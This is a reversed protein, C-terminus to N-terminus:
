ITPITVNGGAAYLRVEKESYGAVVVGIYYDSGSKQYLPINNEGLTATTLTFGKSVILDKYSLVFQNAEEKTGFNETKLYSCKGTIDEETGDAKKIKNDTNVNQFVRRYGVPCKRYPLKDLRNCAEREKAIEALEPDSEWSDAEPTELKSFDLNITTTGIASFDRKVDYNEQTLESSFTGERTKFNEGEFSVSAQNKASGSKVDNTLYGSYFLIESGFDQYTKYNDGDVYFIDDSFAFTPYQNAITGERDKIKTLVNKEEDYSYQILKGDLVKVGNHSSLSGDTDYIRQDIADSTYKIVLKKTTQEAPSFITTTNTYNRGDLLNKKAKAFLPSVNPDSAYPTLHDITATGLESFTTKLVRGNYVTDTENEKYPASVRNLSVVKGDKVEFYVDDPSFSSNRTYNLALEDRGIYGSIYHYTNGGDYSVFKDNGFANSDKLLNIYYSSDFKFQEGDDNKVPTKIVKNNIDIEEKAVQSSNGKVRSNNITEKGTKLDKEKLQFADTYNVSSSDVPAANEEFVTTIEYSEESSTENLSNDFTKNTEISVAKLSGSLSDYLTKDREGYREGLGVSISATVSPDSALTATITVEGSQKTRLSGETKWNKTPDNSDTLSPRSSVSIIEKNSSTWTVVGSKGEPLIAFIPISRNLVPEVPLVIKRKKTDTEQSTSESEKGSSASPKNEEGTNATPIEPMNTDFSTGSTKGNSPNGQCALLFCPLGLAFLYPLRKKM